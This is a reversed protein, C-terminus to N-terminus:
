PPKSTDQVGYAITHMYLAKVVALSKLGNAAVIGDRKALNDSAQGATKQKIPFESILFLSKQM